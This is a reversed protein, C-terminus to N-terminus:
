KKLEYVAVYGAHRTITRWHRFRSHDFAAELCGEINERIEAQQFLVYGAWACLWGFPNTPPMVDVVIAKGTPTLTRWIENLSRRKLDANIHHFFMTSVACDFSADAFPLQEALTATFTINTLHVAKRHAVAIMATAADVGVVSGTAPLIGAIQRTLTGTGCGVDLVRECNEPLLSIVERQITRDMGFMMLPELLDYIDAVHDLTRGTTQLAPNGAIQPVCQRDCHQPMHPHHGARETARSLGDVSHGPWRSVCAGKQKPFDCQM